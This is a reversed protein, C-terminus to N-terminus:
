VILLIKVLIFKKMDPLELRKLIYNGYGLCKICFCKIRVTLNETSSNHAHHLLICCYILFVSKVNGKMFIRVRFFYKKIDKLLERLLIYIGQRYFMSYSHLLILTPLNQNLHSPICLLVYTILIGNLLLTPYM